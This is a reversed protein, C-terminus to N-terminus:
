RTPWGIDELTYFDEPKTNNIEELRADLESYPKAFTEKKVMETTLFSLMNSKNNKKM